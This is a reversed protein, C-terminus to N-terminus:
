AAFAARPCLSRFSTKCNYFPFSTDPDVSSQAADQSGRGPSQAGATRPNSATAPQQSSNAKDKADRVAANLSDNLAAAADTVANMDSAEPTGVASPESVATAATPWIPRARMNVLPLTAAIEAQRALLQQKQQKRLKRKEKKSQEPLESGSSQEASQSLEAPEAPVAPESPQAPQSANSVPSSTPRDHLQSSAAASADADSSTGGSEPKSLLQPMQDSLEATNSVQSSSSRQSIEAQAAAQRSIHDAAWDKLEEAHSATMAGPDRTTEKASDKTVPRVPRSLLKPPKLAELTEAREKQKQKRAAAKAAVAVRHEEEREAKERDTPM